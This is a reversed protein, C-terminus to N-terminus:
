ALDNLEIEVTLFQEGFSELVRLRPDQTPLVRPQLLDMIPKLDAPELTALVGARDGGGVVAALDGAVPLLVAAVAASAKEYLQRAQNDRRRAYRQQSWGGAKTKGQVYGSGTKHDILRPGDFLGVAFGGRRVLIVGVTRDILAHDVLRQPLAADALDPLPPFPITILAVAGDPADLRLQHDHLTASPEGHRVAFNQLWRPLRSREVTIKRPM